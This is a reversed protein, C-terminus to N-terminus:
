DEYDNRKQQKVPQEKTIFDLTKDISSLLTSILTNPDFIVIGFFILLSSSSLITKPM